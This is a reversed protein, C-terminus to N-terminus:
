GLVEYTVGSDRSRNDVIRGPLYSPAPLSVAAGGSGGDILPRGTYALSRTLDDTHDEIPMYPQYSQSAYFNPAAQPMILRPPQSAIGAIAAGGSGSSVAATTQAPLGGAGKGAHAGVMHSLNAAAMVASAVMGIAGAGSLSPSGSLLGQALAPASKCIYFVLLSTFFLPIIQVVEGIFPQQTYENAITIYSYLMLFICVNSFLLKLFFGLMAGIYKEAMFKTGDWLSLPFLIVGVSSVFMFEIFAILYELVCFCGVVITFFGCIVAGFIQFPRKWDFKEASQFINAAILLVLDLAYAPAVTSYTYSKGNITIERNNIIGNLIKHPGSNYKSETLIFASATWNNNNNRINEAAAKM